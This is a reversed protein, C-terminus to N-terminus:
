CPFSRPKRRPTTPRKRRRWARSRARASNARPAQLDEKGAHLGLLRRADPRRGAVRGSDRGAGHRSPGGAVLAPDGRAHAVAFGGQDGRNEVNTTRPQRRDRRHRVPGHRDARLRHRRQARPHRLHLAARRYQRRHRGPRVAPRPVGHRDGQGGLRQGAGRGGGPRAGDALLLRGPRIEAGHADAARRVDRHHDHRGHRCLVLGAGLDVARRRRPGPPGDPLRRHLDGGVLGRGAPQGPDVDDLRRVARRLLHRGAHDAVGDAAPPLHDAAAHRHDGGPRHRAARRDAHRGHLRDPRLAPEPVSVAVTLGLFLNNLLDM